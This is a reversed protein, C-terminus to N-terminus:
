GNKGRKLRNELMFTLVRYKLLIINPILEFFQTYIYVKYCNKNVKIKKSFNAQVGWWSLTSFHIDDFGPKLSKFM